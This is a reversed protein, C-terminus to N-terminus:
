TNDDVFIVDVNGAHARARACVSRQARGLPRMRELLFFLDRNSACKDTDDPPIIRVTKM